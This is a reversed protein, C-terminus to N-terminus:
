FGSGFFIVAFSIRVAPMGWKRMRGAINQDIDKYEM